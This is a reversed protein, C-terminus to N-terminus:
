MRKMTPPAPHAGRAVIIPLIDLSPVNVFFRTLKIDFLMLTPYIMPPTNVNVATSLFIGVGPIIYFLIASYKLGLHAIIRPNFFLIVAEIILSTAYVISYTFTNFGEKIFLIIFLSTFIFYGFGNILNSSVILQGDKDM